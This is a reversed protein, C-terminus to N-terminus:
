GVRGRGVVVVFFFISGESRVRRERVVVKVRAEGLQVGVLRRVLGENSAEGVSMDGQSERAVPEKEVRCRMEPPCLLAVAYRAVLLLLASM